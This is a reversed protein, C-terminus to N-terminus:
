SLSKEERLVSEVNRRFMDTKTNRKKEKNEQKKIIIKKTGYPLILRSGDAEPRM